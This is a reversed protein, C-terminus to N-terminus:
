LIEFQVTDPIAGSVEGMWIQASIAGPLDDFIRRVQGFGLWRWQVDIEIIVSNFHSIDNSSAAKFTIELRGGATVDAAERTLRSSRYIWVKEGSDKIGEQLKKYSFLKQKTQKLPLPM